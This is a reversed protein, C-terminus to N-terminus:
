IAVRAWGAILTNLHPLPEAQQAEDGRNAWLHAVQGLLWTRAHAPVVAFGATYRVVVETHEQAEPADLPLVHATQEDVHRLRWASTPLTQETGAPDIYKVSAVSQVPGRNLAIANDCVPWGHQRHELVTPTLHCRTAELFLGEVAPMIIQTLWLREATSVERLQAQVEEFTLAAAGPTIVVTRM